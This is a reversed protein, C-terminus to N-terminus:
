KLFDDIDVDPIEDDKFRELWAPSFFYSFINELYVKEFCESVGRVTAVISDYEDMGGSWYYVDCSPAPKHVIVKDGVEFHTLPKIDKEDVLFDAGDYIDVVLVLGDTTYRKVKLTRDSYKSCEFEWSPSIVLDGNKYTSM